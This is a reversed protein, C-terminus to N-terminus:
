IMTTAEIANRGMGLGFGMGSLRGLPAADVDPRKPGQRGEVVNKERERDAFLPRPLELFMSSTEVYAPRPKGITSKDLWATVSGFTSRNGASLTNIPLKLKQQKQASPRRSAQSRSTYKSATSTSRSVGRNSGFMCYALRSVLMSRRIPIEQIDLQRRRRRFYYVIGSLSALVLVSGIAISAIISPTFPSTPSTPHLQEGLSGNPSPTTLSPTSIPTATTSTTRTTYSSASLTSLSGSDLTTISITPLGSTSVIPTSTESPTLPRPPLQSAVPAPENGTNGSRDPIAQRGALYHAGRWDQPAATTPVAILLTTFIVCTRMTYRTSSMEVSGHPVRVAINDQTLDPQHLSRIIYQPSPFEFHVLRSVQAVIADLLTEYCIKVM